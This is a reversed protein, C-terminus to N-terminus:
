GLGKTAPLGQGRVFECPALRFAHLRPLVPHLLVAGRDDHHAPRQALGFADTGGANGVDAVVHTRVGQHLRLRVIRRRLQEFPMRVERDEGSVPHFHHRHQRNGTLSPAAAPVGPNVIADGRFFDFVGHAGLAAVVLWLSWQFGAVSVLLFAAGVMSEIVLAHGSGGMVAFLVYYAAIVITVTPYFAWDRDLGTSTAFVGVALALLAGFAL